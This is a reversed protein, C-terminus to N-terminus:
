AKAARVKHLEIDGGCATSLAVAAEVSRRAISEADPEQDYLAYLVGLAIDGGSGIAYYKHFHSVSMDSAVYFIGAPNAILFSADLDAFPSDDRKDCQENVFPYREHLAKWLELFFAFIDGPTGLRPPKAGATFDEIINDYLGWGTTAIFSNGIARVKSARHNDGPVTCSGFSSQTDAALVIDRGKHAAAVISM